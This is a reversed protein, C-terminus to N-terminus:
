VNELNKGTSVNKKSYHKSMNDYDNRSFDEDFHNDNKM